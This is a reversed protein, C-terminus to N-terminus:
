PELRSFYERVYDKLSTPIYEREMAQSATAAYDYYVESYPVLAAAEAGPLPGERQRTETQGEYGEQGPIFDEEGTSESRERPVYVSPLEGVDVPKNPRNPDRARGSADGPPLTRAQTGGQGGVQGQGSQGA